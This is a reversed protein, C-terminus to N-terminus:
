NASTRKVNWVGHQEIPKGVVTTTFTGDITNHERTGTFETQVQCQCSPDTYPDIKGSIKGHEFAVFQIKLPSTGGMLVTGDATHSGVALSFTVPGERGSETGKYNGQWEGALSALEVDGGKVAVQSAGGGCAAVIFGLVFMKMRDVIGSM